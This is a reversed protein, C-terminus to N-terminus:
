SPYDGPYTDGKRRVNHEVLWTRLIRGSIIVYLIGCVSGRKPSRFLAQGTGSSAQGALQFLAEASCGAVILQCTFPGSIPQCSRDLVCGTFYRLRRTLGKV